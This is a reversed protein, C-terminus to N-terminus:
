GERSQATRGAARRRFASPTLGALRHFTLSFYNSDRFGCSAAVDHVPTDTERLLDCAHGIRVRTLYQVPTLGTAAKFHRLLSRVSLCAIEALAELRVDAAYDTDLLAVAKALNTRGSQTKRRPAAVAFRCVTVLLNLLLAGLVLASGEDAQRAEQEMAELLRLCAQLEAEALPRLPRSASPAHPTRPTDGTFLLRYGRLKRLEDRHRRMFTDHILVNVVQVGRTKAYAHTQRGCLLFYDGRALDHTRGALWHGGTGGLVFVLEAFEHGHVCTGFTTTRQVTVPVGPRRFILDSRYFEQPAITSSTTNM